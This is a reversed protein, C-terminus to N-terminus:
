WKISLYLDNGHARSADAPCPPATPASGATSTGRTLAAGRPPRSRCLRMSTCRREREPPVGHRDDEIVGDDGRAVLVGRRPEERLDEAQRIFADAPMERRHM